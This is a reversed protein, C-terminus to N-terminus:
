ASRRGLTASYGAGLGTLGGALGAWFSAYDEITPLLLLVAAGVVLAIRDYDEGNARAEARRLVFWAGLAGLAIGNGGAALTIGDGFSNDLGVAALMGLAGCAVVLLAAPISGLRRELGPVLIALALGVAFLYGADDYVFPAAFYRWIEDFGPAAIAGVDLTTLNAARQVVLLVAPALVAAIAVYPREGAAAFARQERAAAREAARRRRKDRMSERVRIEGGERELKPARRRLRTGCYPCETVYPSVESGCSKCVVSLEPTSV